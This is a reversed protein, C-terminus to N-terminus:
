KAITTTGPFLRRLKTTGQGMLIAFRQGFAAEYRRQDFEVCALLALFGARMRSHLQGQDPAHKSGMHLRKWLEGARYATPFVQPLAHALLHARHERDRELHALFGSALLLHCQVLHHEELMRRNFPLAHQGDAPKPGLLLDLWQSCYNRLALMQDRVDVACHEIRVDLDSNVRKQIREWYTFENTFRRTLKDFM